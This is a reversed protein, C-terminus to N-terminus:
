SNISYLLFIWHVGERPFEFWHLNAWYIFAVSCLVNVQIPFLQSKGGHGDYVGFFSTCDDLDPLAAHQFVICM